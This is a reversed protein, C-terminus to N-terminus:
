ANKPANKPSLVAISARALLSALPKTLVFQAVRFGEWHVVVWSRTGETLISIGSKLKSKAM